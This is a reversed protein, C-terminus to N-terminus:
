TTLIRTQSRLSLIIRVKYYFKRSEIRRPKRMLKLLSLSSERRINQGFGASNLLLNELNMVLLCKIFSETFFNQSVVSEM